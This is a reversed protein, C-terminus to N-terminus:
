RRRRLLSFAWAGRQASAERVFLREVAAREALVAGVCSPEIAGSYETLLLWDLPCDDAGKALLLPSTLSAGAEVLVLPEAAAPAAAAGGGWPAGGGRVAACVGGLAARLPADESTLPLAPAGPAAGGAWRVPPAPTPARPVGLVASFRAGPAFVPLAADVERGGRTLLVHVGRERLGLARRWASLSASVAPGALSFDPAAGGESTVTHLSNVIVSARARAACLLRTDDESRPQNGNLLISRLSGPSSPSACTACILAVGAIGRLDFVAGGPTEM